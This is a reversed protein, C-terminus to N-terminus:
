KCLKSSDENEDDALGIIIFKYDHLRAEVVLSKYVMLKLRQDTVEHSTCNVDFQSEVSDFFWLCGEKWVQVLKIM